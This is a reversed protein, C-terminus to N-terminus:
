HTSMDKVPLNEGAHCPARVGCGTEKGFVAAVAKKNIFPHRLHTKCPTHLHSCDTTKM